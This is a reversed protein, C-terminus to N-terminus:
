NHREKLGRLFYPKARLLNTKRTSSNKIIVSDSIGGPFNKTSNIYTFTYEKNIGQIPNHVKLTDQSNAFSLLIITIVLLGTFPLYTKLKM